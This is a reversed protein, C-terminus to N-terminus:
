GIEVDVRLVKRIFDYYEVKNNVRNEYESGRFNTVAIRLADM